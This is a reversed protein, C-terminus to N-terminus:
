KKSKLNYEINITSYIRNWETYFRDDHNNNGLVIHSLEHSISNIIDDVSKIKNGNIVIHAGKSNFVTAARVNEGEEEITTLTIDVQKKCIEKSIKKLKKWKIKYKM